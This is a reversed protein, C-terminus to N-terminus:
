SPVDEHTTNKDTTEDLVPPQTGTDYPQTFSWVGIYQKPPSGIGTNIQYRGPRLTAPMRLSFTRRVSDGRWCPPSNVVPPESILTHPAANGSMKDTILRFEIRVEDSEDVTGIFNFFMEALIVQSPAPPQLLPGIGALRVHPTLAVDLPM